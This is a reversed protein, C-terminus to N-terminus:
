ETFPAQRLKQGFGLGMHGAIHCDPKEAIQAELLELFARKFDLRPRARVIAEKTSRDVDEAHYGIVDVGAGFHLLRTEIDKRNAIGVASHLAIAEHVRDAREQSASQALMFDRAARAGNVEFSGATDYPSALGLDHMISALFLVEADYNLNLKRGVAAGFLYSRMSHNFLYTPECSQVLDIAQRAMATDPVALEGIGLPLPRNIGITRALRRALGGLEVRAFRFALQLSPTRGLNTTLATM